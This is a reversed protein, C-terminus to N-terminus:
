KEEKLTTWIEQLGKDILSQLDELNMRAPPNDGLPELWDQPSEQPEMVALGSEIAAQIWPEAPIKGRGKSYQQLQWPVRYEPESFVRVKDWNIKKSRRKKKPSPEGTPIDVSKAHEQSM